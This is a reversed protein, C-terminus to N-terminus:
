SCLELGRGLRQLEQSIRGAQGDDPREQVALVRDGSKRLVDTDARGSHRLVEGLEAESASNASSSVAVPDEIDRLVLM